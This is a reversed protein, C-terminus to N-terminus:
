RLQRAAARNEWWASRRAPFVDFSIDELARAHGKHEPLIFETNLHRVRLLASESLTSRM